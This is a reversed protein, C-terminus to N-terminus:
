VDFSERYMWPHHLIKRINIRKELSRNLCKSILDKCETSINRTFLLDGNCIEDKEEWPIDGCVMDYLLMGLTWVTAPGPLYIGSMFWEPPAYAETGQFTHFAEEKLLSGCGFDILKLKRTVLDVLINEDKIDRHIIGKSHCSLVTQVVQYFFNAAVKEDLYEKENIYEFMDKCSVPREMVIIFCDENEFFDMLKIVGKVKQLSHLLKLELPVKKGNLTSWEMINVKLIFKIAVPEGDIIREGAIVKGFGGEGIVDDADFKYRRRMRKISHKKQTPKRKKDLNQKKTSRGRKKGRGKGQVPSVQQHEEELNVEDLGYEKSIREIEKVREEVAELDVEDLGYEKSIGEIEKAREEVAELDVEDLGYEKSIWEIEKTRQEDKTTTTPLCDKFLRIMKSM